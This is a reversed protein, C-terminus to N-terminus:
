KRKTNRRTRCHRKKVKTKEGKISGYVWECDPNSKKRCEQYAVKTCSSSARKTKNPSPSKKSGFLNGLSFAM